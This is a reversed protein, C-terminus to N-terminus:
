GTVRALVLWAEPPAGRRISVHETVRPDAGARRLEPAVSPWVPDAVVWALVGGPRVLHVLPAVVSAGLHGTTFVGAAISADFSAPAFPLSRTLDAVELRRYAGTARALELMEPSLDVGDITTFGHERLHRGAAGTGCGLDIVTATRDDVHDALLAAIQRTGTVGAVEFVDRDYDAAWRAYLEAAAATGVVARATEIPAREIPAREIPATADDTTM